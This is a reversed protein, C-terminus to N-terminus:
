AATSQTIRLAACSEAALAGIEAGIRLDDAAGFAHKRILGQRDILVLSPTGRMNYREMTHPIPGMDNASDLAIPFKLRYEQIFAKLVGPGYADHHEFTAHLGIVSVDTPEFTEHIRRAQPIAFAVSNPCLVQFAVLAVVRGRLAALNLPRDTNFWSHVALEPAEISPATM